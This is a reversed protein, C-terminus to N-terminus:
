KSKESLIESIDQQIKELQEVTNNELEKIRKIEVDTPEMMLEFSLHKLLNLYSDRKELLKEIVLESMLFDSNSLYISISDAFIVSAIWANNEPMFILVIECIGLFNVTSQVASRDITKQQNQIRKLWIDWHEKLILFNWIVYRANQTLQM